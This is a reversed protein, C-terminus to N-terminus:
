ILASSLFIACTCVQCRPPGELAGRGLQVLAPARADRQRRKSSSGFHGGDLPSLFTRLVTRFTSRSSCEVAQGHGSGGGGEALREPADIKERARLVGTVEDRTQDSRVRTRTPDHLVRPQACSQASRRSFRCWTRRMESRLVRVCRDRAGGMGAGCRTTGPVM